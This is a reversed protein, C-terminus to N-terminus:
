PSQERNDLWYVLATQAVTAAGVIVGATASDIFGAAVAAAAGTIACGCAKKADLLVDRLKM